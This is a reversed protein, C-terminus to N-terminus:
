EIGFSLSPLCMKFRMMGVINSIAQIIMRTSEYYKKEFNNNYVNFFFLYLKNLYEINKILSM